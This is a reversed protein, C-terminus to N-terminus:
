KNEDTPEKLAKRAVRTQWDFANGNEEMDKLAASQRRYAAILRLVKENDHTSFGRRLKERITHQEMEDVMEDLTMKKQM